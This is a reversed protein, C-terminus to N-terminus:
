VKAHRYTFFLLGIERRIFRAHLFDECFTINSIRTVYTVM